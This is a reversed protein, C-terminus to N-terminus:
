EFDTAEFHEHWAYDHPHFTVIWCYTQAIGNASKALMLADGLFLESVSTAEV